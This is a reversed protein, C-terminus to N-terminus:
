IIVIFSSRDLAMCSQAHRHLEACSPALLADCTM